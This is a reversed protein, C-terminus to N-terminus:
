LGGFHLKVPIVNGNGIALTFTLVLLRSRFTGLLKKIVIYYICGNM